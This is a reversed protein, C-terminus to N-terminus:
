RRNAKTVRRRAFKKVDFNLYYFKLPFILFELFHADIAVVQTRINVKCTIYELSFNEFNETDVCRKVSLSWIPAIKAPFAAFFPRNVRKRNGTVKEAKKQQTM